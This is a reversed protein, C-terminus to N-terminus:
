AGPWKKGTAQEYRQRVAAPNAGQAIAQKAADYASDGSPKEQKQAGRDLRNPVITKPDMGFSGALEEYSNALQSYQSMAEVRLARATQVMDARQKPSLTQGNLVRNAYNSMKDTLAAANAANAYESERVVSTPDQVKVFQYVLAQLDQPTPNPKTGLAEINKLADNITKYPRSETNFEKRLSSVEGFRPKEEKPSKEEKTREQRMGLERERLALTRQQYETMGEQRPTAIAQVVNSPLVRSMRALRQAEPPLNAIAAEFQADEEGKKATAMEEPSRIGLEMGGITIREAPNAAQMQAAREFQRLRTDDLLKPRAKGTEASTLAMQLPSQAATPMGLGAQGQAPIDPRPRQMRAADELLAYGGVQKLSNENTKAGISEIWRRVADSAAKSQTSIGAKDDLQTFMDGGKFYSQLAQKDLADLENKAFAEYQKLNEEVFSAPDKGAPNKRLDDELVKRVAAISDELGVRQAQYKNRAKPRNPAAREPPAVDAIGVNAQRQSPLAGLRVPAAGMTSDLARGIPSGQRAGDMVSEPLKPAELSFVEQAAPDATTRVPSFGFGAARLANFRALANIEDQQKRQAALIDRQQLGEGVGVAAGLAGRLATMGGFGRRAM